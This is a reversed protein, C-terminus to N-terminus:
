AGSGASGPGRPATDVWRLAKVLHVSSGSGTVSDFVAEDTLARMMALGRGREVEGEPMSPPPISLDGFGRGSDTVDITLQEDGVTLVVDYGPGQGAHQVVNTCAESVAIAVEDICEATVGANKLATAVTRRVLPVSATERPLSMTIEIRMRQGRGSM